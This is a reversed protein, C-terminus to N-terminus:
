EKGLRMVVGVGFVNRFSKTSRYINFFGLQAQYQPVIYWNDKLHIEYAMQFLLSIGVTFDGKESIEKVTNDGEINWSYRKGEILQNVLFDISVGTNFHFSKFPSLCLPFIEFGISSNKLKVKGSNGGGLGGSKINASGTFYQFKLGMKLPYSNDKFIDKASFGIAYGLGNEYESSYHPDDDVLDYFHNLVLGSSFEIKQASVNIIFSAMLIISICILRYM